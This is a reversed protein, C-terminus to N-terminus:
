LGLLVPSLLLFDILPHITPFSIATKAKDMALFPSFSIGPRVSKSTGLRKPGLLALLILFNNANFFVSSIANTFFDTTLLLNM